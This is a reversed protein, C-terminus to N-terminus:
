SDVLMQLMAEVQDDPYGTTAESSRLRKHSGESVQDTKFVKRLVSLVGERKQKLLMLEGNVESITTQATACKVRLEEREDKIASLQARLADCEESLIGNSAQAAMLQEELEISNVPPAPPVLALQKIASEAEERKEEFKEVRKVARELDATLTAITLQSRRQADVADKHAGNREATLTAIKSISAEVKRRAADGDEELQTVLRASSDREVRARAAAMIESEMQLRLRDCEAMSARHRLEWSSIEAKAKTLQLTHEDLERRLEAMRQEAARDHAQLLQQGQGLQMALADIQIRQRDNAAGLEAVRHRASECESRSATLEAAAGAAAASPVRNEIESRLQAFRLLIGGSLPTIVEVFMVTMLDNFENTTLYGGRDQRRSMVKNFMANKEAVTAGLAGMIDNLPKWSKKTAMEDVTGGMEMTLAQSVCVAMSILHEFYHVDIM